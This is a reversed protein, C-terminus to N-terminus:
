CYLLSFTSSGTADRLRNPKCCLVAKHLSTLYNCTTSRRIFRFLLLLLSFVSVSYNVRTWLIKSLV